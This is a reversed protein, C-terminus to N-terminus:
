VVTVPQGGSGALCGNPTRAHARLQRAYKHRLCAICRLEQYRPEEDLCTCGPLRAVDTSGM